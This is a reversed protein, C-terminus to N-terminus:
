TMMMIKCVCSILYLTDVFHSFKIYWSLIKNLIYDSNVIEIGQLGHLFFTTRCQCEDLKM